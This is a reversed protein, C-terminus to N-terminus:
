RGGNTNGMFYIIKSTGDQVMRVYDIFEVDDSVDMNHWCLGHLFRSDFVAGCSLCECSPIGKLTYQGDNLVNDINRLCMSLSPERCCKPTPPLYEAM